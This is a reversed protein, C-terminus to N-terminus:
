DAQSRVIPLMANRFKTVDSFSLKAFTKASYLIGHEIAFNASYAGHHEVVALFIESDDKESTM